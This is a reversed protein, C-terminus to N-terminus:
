AARRSPAEHITQSSSLLFSSLVLVVACGGVVFQSSLGFLDIVVGMLIPGILSGACNCSLYWANARAMARPPVREGLVALGLPYLAGCAAGLVFLWVGIPLPSRLWPVCVMGLLVVAHCALLVHWRGCRDALWAVPLQALLVGAFLGGMLVSVTGEGHHLHLLYLSLFTLTGGELFGQAWATGLSFLNERWPPTASPAETVEHRGPMPTWALGISLLTILGGLAFALRPVVPYLGLGVVSGVGIGLAVCFAYVAFDRARREPPAHHNVFTEMPILSLATGIGGALRLVHWTFLNTAFPFLATTVADLLMGIVVCTRNHRRMLWPVVPAAVAVGLYYISTNLGIARASCGADRLWLSALPAGLGFSVAWGLSALSVLLLPRCWRSVCWTM